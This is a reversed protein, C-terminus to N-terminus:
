RYTLHEGPRRTSRCTPHAPEPVVLANASGAGAGRREAYEPLRRVYPQRRHFSRRANDVIDQRSRSVGEPEELPPSISIGIAHKM